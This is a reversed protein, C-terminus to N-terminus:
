SLFNYLDQINDEAQDFLYDHSGWALLQPFVKRLLEFAFLIKKVRGLIRVRTLIIRTGKKRKIISLLFVKSARKIKRKAPIVSM